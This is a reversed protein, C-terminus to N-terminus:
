GSISCRGAFWTTPLEVIERLSIPRRQAAAAGARQGRCHHSSGPQGAARISLGTDDGEHLAKPRREVEVDVQRQQYEVAGVGELAGVRTEVTSRGSRSGLDLV